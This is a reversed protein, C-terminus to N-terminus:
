LFSSTTAFVARLEVWGVSFINVIPMIRLTMGPFFTNEETRVVRGVPFMGPGSVFIVDDPSIGAYSPVTAEMTGGGTGRISITVNDEGAWGDTVVGPSTLLSVRSFDDLVESVTGIPTGFAFATMGVFVGKKSGAGLLLTDYPSQPPRAIVGVVMGLATDSQEQSSLVQKERKLLFQKQNTLFMNEESLRENEKILSDTNKISTFFAQTVSSIRGSVYFVPRFIHLFLNPAIIRLLFILIFFVFVTTGFSVGQLPFLTNNKASYTRKM